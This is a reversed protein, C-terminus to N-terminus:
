SSPMDWSWRVQGVEEGWGGERPQSRSLHSETNGPSGPCGPGWATNATEPLGREGM